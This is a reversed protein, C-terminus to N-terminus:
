RLLNDLGLFVSGRLAFYIALLFYVVNSQWGVESTHVAHRGLRQAEAKPGNEPLMNLLRQLLQPYTRLFHFQVPFTPILFLAIMLAAVRTQFGLVLGISGLLLLAIAAVAFVTTGTSFVIRATNVAGPWRRVNDVGSYLFRLGFAIRLLAEVIVTFGIEM